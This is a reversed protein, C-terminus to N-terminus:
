FKHLKNLEFLSIYRNYSAKYKYSGSIQEFLANLEKPTKMAVCEVYGQTVLFNESKIDLDYAQLTTM